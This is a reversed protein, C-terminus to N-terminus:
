LGRGKKKQTAYDCNNLKKEEGNCPIYVRELYFALTETM